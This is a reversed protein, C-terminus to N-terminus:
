RPAWRHTCRELKAASVTNGCTGRGARRPASDRGKPRAWWPGTGRENRARKHSGGRGRLGLRKLPTCRALSAGDRAGVSAREAAGLRTGVSAGVPAGVLVGASEGVPAGVSPGISGRASPRASSRVPPQEWRLVWPVPAGVSAGLVAGVSAGVSAGPRRLGRAGDSAGPAAGEAAGVAAGERAGLSAGVAAGEPQHLQQGTQPRKSVRPSECSRRRRRRSSGGGVTRPAQRGRQHKSTDQQAAGDRAGVSAGRGDGRRGTRADGMVMPGAMAASCVCLGRRSSWRRRGRLRRRGRRRIGWRRRRRAGRRIGRWAGWGTLQRAADAVSPM